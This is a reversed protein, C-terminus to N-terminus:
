TLLISFFALDLALNHPRRWCRRCMRRISTEHFPGLTLCCPFFVYCNFEIGSRPLRSSTESYSHPSQVEKGDGEGSSSWPNSVSHLKPVDLLGESVWVRELKRRMNAWNWAEQPNGTHVLSLSLSRPHALLCMTGPFQITLAIQWIRYSNVRSQPRYYNLPRRVGVAYDWRM